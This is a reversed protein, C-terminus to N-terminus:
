IHKWTLRFVINHITSWGVNYEKAIEMQTMEGSDYKRRIEIVQEETLRAKPNKIGTSHGDYGGMKHSYKVNDTHTMWELNDVRNNTRDRDIHNVDSLNNPNPIFACAVLRHVKIQKGKWKRQGVKPNERPFWIRVLKYGDKSTRQSMLMGKSNKVNGMNSVYYVRNAINIEKWIEEM